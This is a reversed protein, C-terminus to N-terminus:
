RLVGISGLCLCKNIQIRTRYNLNNLQWMFITRQLSTNQLRFPLESEIRDERVSTKEHFGSGPRCQGLNYVTPRLCMNDGNYVFHRRREKHCYQM